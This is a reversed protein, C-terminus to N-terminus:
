SSISGDIKFEKKLKEIMDPIEKFLKEEDVHLKEYYRCTKSTIDENPSANDEVDRVKRIYFNHDKIRQFTDQLPQLIESRLFTIKGSYILSDYFDHNLARNMFFFESDGIKVKKLDSHKTEDLGDLTDNLEKYLNKSARSREDKEDQSKKWFYWPVATIVSLITISSAWKGLYEGEWIYDWRALCILTVAIGLVIIIGVINQLSPFKM